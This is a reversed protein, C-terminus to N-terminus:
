SLLILALVASSPDAPKLGFLTGRLLQAVGYACPLGILIGIGVLRLSDGLVMRAVEGPAAGLAMRIGIENTRRTVSYVLLGALGVGALILAVFGFGNSLVSLLLEVRLLGNILNTQTSIQDVPVVPDASAAARRLADFLARPD